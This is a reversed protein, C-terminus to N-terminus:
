GSAFLSNGFHSSSLLSSVLSESDLMLLSIEEIGRLHVIARGIVRFDLFCLTREHKIM